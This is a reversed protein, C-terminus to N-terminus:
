VVLPDQAAHRAQRQREYDSPSEPRFGAGLQVLLGAAPPGDDQCRSADVNPNSKLGLTIHENEILQQRLSYWGELGLRLTTFRLRHHELFCLSHSHSLASGVLVEGRRRRRIWCHRVLILLVLLGVISVGLLVFATTSSFVGFVRTTPVHSSCQASALVNTRWHITECAAVCVCGSRGTCQATPGGSPSTYGYLGNRGMISRRRCDACGSETQSCYTTNTSPYFTALETAAHRRYDFRWAYDTLAV